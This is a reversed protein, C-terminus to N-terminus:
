NEIREASWKNTSEDLTFKVPRSDEAFAKKEIFLLSQEIILITQYNSPKITAECNTGNIAAQGSFEAAAVM